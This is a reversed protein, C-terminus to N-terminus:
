FYTLLPSELYRCEYKNGFELALSLAAASRREYETDFPGKNALFDKCRKENLFRGSGSWDPREPDNVEVLYWGSSTFERAVASTPALGCLAIATAFLKM